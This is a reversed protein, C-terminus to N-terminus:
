STLPAERSIEFARSLTQCSAMNLNFFFSMEPLKCTKGFVFPLTLRVLRKKLLTVVSVVWLEFWQKRKSM